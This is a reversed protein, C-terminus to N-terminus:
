YNKQFVQYMEHISEINIDNDVNEFMNALGHWSKLLNIM